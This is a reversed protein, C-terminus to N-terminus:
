WGVINARQHGVAIGVDAKQGAVLREPVVPDVLGLGRDDPSADLGDGDLLATAVQADCRRVGRVSSCGTSSRVVVMSGGSGSRLWFTAVANMPTTSSNRAMWNWPAATSCPTMSSFDLRTTSITSVWMRALWSSAPLVTPMPTTPNSWAATTAVTASTADIVTSPASTGWIPTAWTAM